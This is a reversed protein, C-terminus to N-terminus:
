RRPEQRGRVALLRDRRSNRVCRQSGAAWSLQEDDGDVRGWDLAVVHGGDRGCHPRRADQQQPFYSRAYKSVIRAQPRDVALCMVTAAEGPRLMGKYDTGAAAWAAIASAISDKGARRGAVVWLERVRRGPPERQALERFTALEELSMPLGFAGKLVAKWADWSPGRFWPGLLNPDSIADIVNM